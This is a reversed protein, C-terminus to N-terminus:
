QTREKVHESIDVCVADFERTIELNSYRVVKLGLRALYRDRIKDDDSGEESYHQSGDLEIVLKASACYFDVIYPGLVKQRNFRVPYQRLFDYWLHKEEKTQNKRLATSFGKLNPNDRRSMLGMGKM